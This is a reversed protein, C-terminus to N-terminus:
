FPVLTHCIGCSRFMCSLALVASTIKELDITSIHQMIVSVISNKRIPFCNSFPNLQMQFGRSNSKSFFVAHLIKFIGDM